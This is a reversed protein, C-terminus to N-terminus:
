FGEGLKVTIEQVTGARSLQIRASQGATLAAALKVLQERSQVAKGQFRSIRDGVQLGAGAAPSKALVAKVEVGGGVDALEVGLFGRPKVPAEAKKGLLGGMLKMVSGLTDLGGAGGKGGLGEPDPPNYDLQTWTMKDRTFDFRIRYRALLNYGIIGHLEAGALGLGNMGELQFPTEVRGKMKPIAVGGELEFRDFTGWLNQDPEVGVKKAVATAVFLVPAGTDIIFNFPGKGNIKARVLVHMTNTLRYPVEFTKGKAAKGDEAWAPGALGLATLGLLLGYRKM